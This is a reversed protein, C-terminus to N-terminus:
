NLQYNSETIFGSVDAQAYLQGYVHSGDRVGSDIALDDDATGVSGGRAVLNINGAVVNPVDVTRGDRDTTTLSNSDLISGGRTTLTVDGEGSVISNGRLDGAAEDIFISQLASATLVGTQPVGAVSDLLDTELFNDATGITGTQATLTINVGVVDAPDSAATLDAPTADLISHPALLSAAGAPSEILGVRLDNPDTPDVALIERLPQAGTGIFGNTLVDVWGGNPQINTTGLVNIVTDSPQAQAAAISINGGAQVLGFNSTSPIATAGSELPGPPLPPNNAGLKDNPRFFNAFSQSLGESPVTVLVGGASRSGSEQVSPQMVVNANAGATIFDTNVQFVQGQALDDRLLGTLNLFVNAGAAAYLHEPRGPSAVLVVNVP